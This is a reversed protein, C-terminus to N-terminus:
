KLYNSDVDMKIAIGSIINIIKEQNRVIRGISFMFRAIVLLVLFLFGYLIIGGLILTDPHM